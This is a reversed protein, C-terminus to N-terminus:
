KQLLSIKRNIFDRMKTRIAACMSKRHTSKLYSAYDFYPSFKRFQRAMNVTVGDYSDYRGSFINKKMQEITKSTIPFLKGYNRRWVEGIEELSLAQQTSSLGAYLYTVFVRPVFISKSKRLCLRIVFDYDAASKYSTDFIGEKIMVQRKAFMTQHCFPMALFVNSIRPNCHPHNDFLRGDEFKIMAPAYSFDANSEELARVSISVGEKDSYYDDSNLFAVYKGQALRIGKNMADYIGSDPESILRAKKSAYKKILDLTGDTSAGDVIIHEINEYTQDHISQMCQRFIESRGGKILNFTTTVITVLPKATAHTQQSGTIFNKISHMTQDM